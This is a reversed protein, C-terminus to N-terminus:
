PRFAAKNALRDKEIQLLSDEEQKKRLDLERQPAEQAEIRTAVVIAPGALANLRKSLLVLYFVQENAPQLLNCLYQPDEWRAVVNMDGQLASVAATEDPPRAAVGYISSIAAILDETTMGRTKYRDYAVVMRFLEGNYFSLAVETVSDTVPYPQSREPRWDLEQILAPRQHVTKVESARMGGAEAARTIDMGFQFPRYKSLDGANLLATSAALFLATISVYKMIKTLM